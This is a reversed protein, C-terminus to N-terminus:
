IRTFARIAAIETPSGVATAIGVALTASATAVIAAALAAVTTAIVAALSVVTTAMAVVAVAIAAAVSTRVALVVRVALHEQHLREQLGQSCTFPWELYTLYGMRDELFSAGNSREGPRAPNEKLM